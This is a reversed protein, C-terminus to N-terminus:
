NLKNQATLYNYLDGVKHLGPDPIENDILKYLWGRSVGIEAAIVTRKIPSANLLAVTSNLIQKTDMVWSYLIIYKVDM